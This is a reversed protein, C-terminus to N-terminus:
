VRDSTGRALIWSHTCGNLDARPGWGGQPDNRDHARERDPLPIRAEFNGSTFTISGGVRIVGHAYKALTIPVLLVTEILERAVGLDFSAIPATPPVIGSTVVLHDFRGIERFLREVDTERRADASFIRVHPPGGLADSAERLKDISRAVLVVSAGRDLLATAAGRGIGSSGGVIVVTQGELRM